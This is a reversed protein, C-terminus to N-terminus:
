GHHSEGTYIRQVAEDAVIEAPTGSALIRGDQMITVRDAVKLAIDLDHEILGISLDRPLQELLDTLHTRETPSLGAAPEDFLLLHPEGVLAMGIELQRQQGYSLNDVTKDLMDTLYVQEACRHAEEYLSKDARGPFLAQRRGRVGSVALFLNKEVTLSGFLLSKQYTRRLGSRIRLHTPLRTVDRGDLLITGSSPLLDGTVLNFLTTKGAGNPGLIAHREGRGIELDIDSVARLAEFNKGLRRIALAPSARGQPARMNDAAKDM